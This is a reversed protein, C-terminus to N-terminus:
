LFNSAVSHTNIEFKLLWDVKTTSPTPPPDPILKPLLSALSKLGREISINSARSNTKVPHITCHYMHHYLAPWFFLTLVHPLIFCSALSKGNLNAQDFQKTRLPNKFILPDSGSFDAVTAAYLDGGVSIILSYLFLQLM